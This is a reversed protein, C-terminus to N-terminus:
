LKLDVLETINDDGDISLRETDFGVKGYRM